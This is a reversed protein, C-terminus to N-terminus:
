AGQRALVRAVTQPYWQGGRKSVLGACNLESTIQRLSKGAAALEAIRSAIAAEREKTVLVGGESRTGFRPSGYGAYGGAAAQAKRGNRMRKAVLARDLEGLIGQIKRLTTRLPEDPDDALVEGGPDIAFVRGGTRWVMALAAEQVELERALRFLDPVLLGDARGDEIAQIAALLGPREHVPLIGTLAEDTEIRPLRHGADKV